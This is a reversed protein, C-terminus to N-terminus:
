QGEGGYTMVIRAGDRAVLAERDLMALQAEALGTLAAIVDALSTRGAGYSATELDARERALSLTVDRARVWQDQHMAHEALDAELAAVLARRASEREMELRSADIRRAAIRSDQRREGFLPLSVTATASVMDGYMPDRRGYSLGFNWDPRKGAEALGVDARAQRVRADFELLMPHRDIGARLSVADVTFPPPAGAVDALPDGTWRVLEARAKGVAAALESRRDQLAAKMQLPELAQGPRMTGSAVGAGSSAWLPELERLVDDVAALRRKAYYLDIWALATAVQIERETMRSRAQAAAIDAGARTREAERRAGSPVDQSIGITQMTGSDGDFRGAVPGSVPYNIIGFNLSPDPLRGAAAADRKAADIELGAARASPGEAVARAIAQDFTLPEALAPGALLCAAVFFSPLRM